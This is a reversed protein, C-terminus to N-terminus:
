KVVWAISITHLNDNLSKAGLNRFQTYNLYLHPYYESSNLVINGHFPIWARNVIKITEDNKVIGTSSSKSAVIVNSRFLHRYLIFMSKWTFIFSAVFNVLYCLVYSLLTDIRIMLADYYHFSYKVILFSHYFNYM